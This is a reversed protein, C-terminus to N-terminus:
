QIVTKAQREVAEAKLVLVAVALQADSDLTEQLTHRKVEALGPGDEHGVRFLVENDRQVDRMKKLEDSMVVESAGYSVEVDPGVGWDNTGDRKADEKSKVPKGSPLYYYAMTYKLQAGKGLAKITQVSGKGHTREGVIVAREHNKDGLAGAVIESASASYRNVLVVMPYDPHTGNRNAEVAEERGLGIRPRSSVILGESIFKDTVDIASSLLGGTNFRLDLILGDMGQAELNNLVQELDPATRDDFSTIRVYGINMGEPIMYQWDGADTRQWGRLTPVTIKARKITIDFAEALAERRITLRVDTGAPGTINRVACTLSMDKTPVGDVKEIVDGADLGSNYAPTDPLLSAVALLGKTKSIEVGIGTFENTLSKEFDQTQQPWIMFSHQDLTSFAADSFQAILVGQPLAITTSNLKLINQFLAIFSDRTLGLIADDVEDRIAALGSSWASLKSEYNPDAAAKYVKQVETSAAMVGALLKCRELAKSAMLRWDVQRVYSFQLVKVADIFMEPEIGAYREARTECPSDEFSAVISAKDSLTEAYDAFAQNDRDIEKLWSYSVLYAELWEGQTEFEAAKEMAREITRKVYPDDLLQRRQTQDAHEVATTIVSLTTTIDNVDNPENVDNLPKGILTKNPDNKLKELEALQKEYSKQRADLRKQDIQRYEGAIQQLQELRATVFSDQPETRPISLYAKISDDADAFKGQYILQCAAEVAKLDPDKEVQPADAIKPEPPRSAFGYVTSFVLLM